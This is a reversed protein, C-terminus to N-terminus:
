ILYTVCIRAVTEKLSDTLCPSLCGYKELLTIVEKIDKCDKIEQLLLEPM